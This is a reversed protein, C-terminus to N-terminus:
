KINNKNVEDKIGQISSRKSKGKKNIKELRTEYVGRFIRGESM